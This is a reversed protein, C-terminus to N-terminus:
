ERELRGPVSYSGTCWAEVRAMAETVEATSESYSFRVYRHGRPPDFDIGPTVAVGLERLWTACLNQSDDTLHAVNAYVYFAGDSPALEAFGARQLSGVVIDRNTRYRAVNQDLEETCDFAAVAALQSLTPPSIFLNQALREIPDVLNDPAILWGLRWGTMSYYKSFSQLVIADSSCSAASAPPRDYDIGQYIEDSILRIDSRDCYNILSSMEEPGYATGTPNAPSGIVVGVVEGVEELLAPTISFRTEPGLPVAVVDVGFAELMNRYCPYGPEAVVVRDGPDFAALFSLVCGGSAGVTVIVRAPDVTTDHREAYFRAIREKLEAIGTAATYGLRDRDLAARAAAIVGAPASTSPQGVEM